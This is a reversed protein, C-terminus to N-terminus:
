AGRALRSMALTLAELLMDPMLPKELFDLAGLKMAKVAIEVGGSDSMAIVAMASGRRLLEAQLRLGACEPMRIDILVCGVTLTELAHLFADPRAFGRCRGGHDECVRDLEDRVSGDEDVVYIPYPM